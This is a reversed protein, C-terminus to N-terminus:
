IEPEFRGAYGTMELYGEGELPRGNSEGRVGASGEWYTVGTSATTVLEQADFRAEVELAIGQGPLRVSWAVPYRAGTAESTWFRRPTLEIAGNGLHAPPGSAPVLTGQVLDGQAGRLRYVMLDTGDALQLGMWDWGVQDRALQDSGFEHDMWSRGTVAERRGEHELVGATAFRTISVYHSAHRRDLSKVSVGADGHIVPPRSPTLLLDIALGRGHARLRHGGDEQRVSWDELLVQLSDPSAGAAGPGRRNWREEFVHRGAALDSLAFHALYLHDLRWASAPSDGPRGSLSPAQAPPEIGARFLTLQYGFRRGDGTALHGTYYWWETAFDPHAGHDRPFRYEYGPLARRWGDPTLADPAPPANQACVTRAPACALLQALGLASALAIRPAFRLALRRTLRRALRRALPLAPLRRPHPGARRTV